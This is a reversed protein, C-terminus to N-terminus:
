EPLGTRTNLSPLPLGIMCDWSTTSPRTHGWMVQLLALAVDQAFKSIIVYQETSGLWDQNLRLEVAVSHLSDRIGRAPGAVAAIAGM